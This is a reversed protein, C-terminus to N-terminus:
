QSAGSHNSPGRGRSSLRNALRRTRPHFGALPLGSSAPPIEPAFEEQLFLECLQDRRFLAGCLALYAAVLAPDDAEGEDRKREILFRVAIRAVNAEADPIRVTRM